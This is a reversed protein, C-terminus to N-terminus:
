NNGRHARANGVAFKFLAYSFHFRRTTSLGEKDFRCDIIEWPFKCEPVQLTCAGTYAAIHNTANQALELLLVHPTGLGHGISV